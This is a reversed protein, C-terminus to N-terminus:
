KERESTLFPRLLFLLLLTHTPPSRMCTSAFLGLASLGSQQSNLFNLSSFFNGGHGSSFFFRSLFLWRSIKNQLMSSLMMM